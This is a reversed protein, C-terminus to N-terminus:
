LFNFCERFYSKRASKNKRAARAEAVRREVTRIGAIIDLVGPNGRVDEPTIGISTFDQQTKANKIKVLTSGDKPIDLCRLLFRSRAKSALIIKDRSNMYRAHRNWLLSICTAYVIFSALTFPTGPDKINQKGLQAMTWIDFYCYRQQPSFRIFDVKAIKTIVFGRFLQGSRRKWVPAKEDLINFATVVLSQVDQFDPQSKELYIVPDRIGEVLVCYRRRMIIGAPITYAGIVQHVAKKVEVILRYLKPNLHRTRYLLMSFGPSWNRTSRRRRSMKTSGFGFWILTKANQFPLAPTEGATNPTRASYM